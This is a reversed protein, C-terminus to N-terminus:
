SLSKFQWISFLKINATVFLFCNEILKQVWFYWLKEDYIQLKSYLICFRTEEASKKSLFFKVYVNNEFCFDLESCSGLLYYGIINKIGICINLSYVITVNWVYVTVKSVKGSGLIIPIQGLYAKLNKLLDLNKPGQNKGVWYVEIM